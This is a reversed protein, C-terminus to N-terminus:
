LVIMPDMSNILKREDKDEQTEMNTIYQSETINVDKSCRKIKLYLNVIEKSMKELKQVTEQYNKPIKKTKAPDILVSPVSNASHTHEESSSNTVVRHLIAKVPM